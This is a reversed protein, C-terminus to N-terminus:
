AIADMIQITLYGNAPYRSVKGSNWTVKFEAEYTGITTTDSTGWDYRVAGSAATVIVASGLNIIITGTFMDRMSFSVSSATTLDVAMGDEDQLTAELSPLRDGEKVVFLTTSL